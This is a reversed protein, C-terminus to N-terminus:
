KSLVGNTPKWGKQTQHFTTRKAKVLDLTALRDLMRKISGDGGTCESYLARIIRDATGPLPKTRHKEWLRLTQEKAGIINALAHQTVEMELRLFRLEAGNLPKPADVLSRGIAKHLGETNHISVGKGYETKHITYGDALFIDDLGSEKYHYM